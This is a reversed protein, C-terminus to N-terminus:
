AHSQSRRPRASICRGFHWYRAVAVPTLGALACNTKELKWTVNQWWSIERQGLLRGWRHDGYPRPLPWGMGPDNAFEILWPDIVEKPWDPLDKQIDTVTVM